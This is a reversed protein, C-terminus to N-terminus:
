ASTEQTLEREALLRKKIEQDLAARVVELQADRQSHWSGAPREDTSIRRIGTSSVPSRRLFSDISKDHSHAEM